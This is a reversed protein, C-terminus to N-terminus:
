NRVILKISGDTLVMATTVANIARYMIFQARKEDDEPYLKYAIEETRWHDYCFLQLEDDNDQSFKDRDFTTGPVFNVVLGVENHKGILEEVPSVEPASENILATTAQRYQYEGTQQDKLFYEDKNALLSLSRGLMLHFRSPIFNERGLMTSVLLKIQSYAEPETGKALIAIAKDVAGCGTVEGAANSDIHAGFLIESEEYNEVMQEQDNIITSGDEGDPNEVVKHTITAGTTGGALKPGRKSSKASRRGDICQEPAGEDCPVFYSEIIEPDSLLQQVRDYIDPEAEIRSAPGISGSWVDSRVDVSLEPGLDAIEKLVTIRATQKTEKMPDLEFRNQM